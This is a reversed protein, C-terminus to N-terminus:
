LKLKPLFVTNIYTKIYFCIFPINKHFPNYEMDNLVGPGIKM